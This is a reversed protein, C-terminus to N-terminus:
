DEFVIKTSLSFENCRISLLYLLDLIRLLLRLLTLYYVM